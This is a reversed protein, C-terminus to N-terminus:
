NAVVVGSERVGVITYAFFTVHAQTCRDPTLREIAIRILDGSRSNVGAGQDFPVKKLDFCVVYTDSLYDDRTINPAYGLARCLLYYQMAITQSPAPDPYQKGGISMRISPCWGPNGSDIAPTLGLGNPPTSPILFDTSRRTNTSFTIWVSSIKSFARVAPIDVQTMGAGIPHTFTYATLCPINLVQNARLSSFLSNQIGEDCIVQDYIIRVNELAFNTSFDVGTNLWENNDALVLQVELPMFRSPLIKGSNFLSLHLKHLVSAREGPEIRGIQPQGAEMLGNVTDRSGGLGCVAAESWQDQFELLQYGFLEHRRGYMPLEEILTGQSLLRVNAWCCWPGGYPQLNKSGDRNVLGFSLRVSSADIFHDTGLKITV